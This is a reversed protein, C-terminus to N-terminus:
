KDNLDFTENNFNPLNFPNNDNSTNESTSDEEKPTALNPLEFDFNNETSVDNVSNDEPENIDTIPDLAPIAEIEPLDMKEESNSNNMNTSFDNIPENFTSNDIKEEIPEVPEVKKPEEKPINYISTFLTPDYPPVSTKSSEPKVEPTPEEKNIYVSSFQNPTVIREDYPKSTNVSNNIDVPEEKPVSTTEINKDLEVSLPNIIEESTEKNSENTNNELPVDVSVSSLDPAPEFLNNTVEQVPEEIKKDEQPNNNLVTDNGNIPSTSLDAPAARFISTNFLNEEQTGEKPEEMPMIDIAEPKPNENLNAANDNKVPDFSFEMKNDQPNELPVNQINSSINIPQNDLVPQAQPSDMNPQPNSSEITNSVSTINESTKNEEKSVKEVPEKKKRGSLILAVFIIALIIILIFLGIVFYESNYIKNVINKIMDM